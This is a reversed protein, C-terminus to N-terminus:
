VLDGADPGHQGSVFERLAELLDPTRAAMALTAALGCGAPGARELLMPVVKPIEPHRDLYQRVARQLKEPDENSPREIIKLLEEVKEWAAADLVETKISFTAQGPACNRHKQGAWYVPYEGGQGVAAREIGDFEAVRAVAAAPLPPSSTAM